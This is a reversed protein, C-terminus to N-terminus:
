LAAEWESYPKAPRFNPSDPHNELYQLVQLGKETIQAKWVKGRGSTTLAGYRRLHSLVNEATRYRLWDAEQLPATMAQGKLFVTDVPKDADKLATLISLAAAALRLGKAPCAWFCWAGTESDTGTKFDISNLNM